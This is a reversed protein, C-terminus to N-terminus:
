SSIEIELPTAVEIGKPKNARKRFNFVAIGIVKGTKENVREFLDNGLDNFYGKVPKGARIELFDGEKDYHIHMKGKM